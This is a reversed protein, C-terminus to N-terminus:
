AVGQAKQVLADLQLQMTALPVSKFTLSDLDDRMQAWEAVTMTFTISLKSDTPIQINATTEM